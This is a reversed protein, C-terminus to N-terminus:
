GVKKIIIQDERTLTYLEGKEVLNVCPNLFQTVTLDTHDDLQKKRENALATSDYGLDYNSVVEESMYDILAKIADEDYLFVQQDDEIGKEVQNNNSKLTIYEGKENVKTIYIAAEKHDGMLVDPESPYLSKLTKLHDFLGYESKQMLLNIHGCGCHFDDGPAGDWQHVHSDSHAYFVKNEVVRERINIGEDGSLNKLAVLLMTYLGFEGGACNLLLEHTNKDRSRGDVCMIQLKGSTYAKILQEHTFIVINSETLLSQM